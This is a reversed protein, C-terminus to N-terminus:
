SKNHYSVDIVTIIVIKKYLLLELISMRLHFQHILINIKM